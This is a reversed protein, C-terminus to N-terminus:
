TFIEERREPISRLEVRNSYFEESVYLGCFCQGWQKIDNEAYRCPCAIDKNEKGGDTDRCPCHYFGYRKLNVSLGDELKKRFSIDPNIFWKKHKATAAVFKSEKSEFTDTGEVVLNNGKNKVSFMKEWAIRIFGIQYDSENVVLTPLSMREKFIIQFEEKAKAKAKLKPNIKDMFVLNYNINNEELFLIARKCFACTSLGFLKVDGKYLTGKIKQFEIYEFM